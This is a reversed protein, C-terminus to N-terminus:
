ISAHYGEAFSPYREDPALQHLVSKTQFFQRVKTVALSLGFTSSELFNDLIM